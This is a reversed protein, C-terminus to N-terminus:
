RCDCVALSMHPHTSHQALREVTVCLRCCAGVKKGHLDFLFRKLEADGLAVTVSADNGAAAASASAATATESATNTPPFPKLHTNTCLSEFPASADM